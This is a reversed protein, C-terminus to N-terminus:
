SETDVEARVTDQSLNLGAYILDRLATSHITIVTNPYGYPSIDTVPIGFDCCGVQASIEVKKKEKSISDCADRCFLVEPHQSKLYITKTWILNM